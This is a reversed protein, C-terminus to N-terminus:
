GIVKITNSDAQHILYRRCLPLIYSLFPLLCSIVRFESTVQQFTSQQKM